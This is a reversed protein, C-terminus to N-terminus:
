GSELPLWEDPSRPRDRWPVNDAFKALSRQVAEEPFISQLLRRSTAVDGAQFALQALGLLAAPERPPAAFAPQAAVYARGFSGLASHFGAETVPSPASTRRAQWVSATRIMDALGSLREPDSFAQAREVLARAQEVDGSRAVLLASNILLTWCDSCGALARKIETRAATDDGRRQAAEASMLRLTREEGQLAARTGHEDAIDLQVGAAPLSLRYVEGRLAAQTFREIERLTDHEIDPTATLLAGLLKIVLSARQEGEGARATKQQELARKALALAAHPRGAQLERSVFYEHAPAYGPNESWERRWFAEASAFDTARLASRAGLLALVAFGAAAASPRRGLSGAFAAAVGLAVAVMPVYLFRPSVLVAYGLWIASSVPVLTTILALLALSVEPRELRLRYAAAGAGVLALGGALVFAPYPEIVGAGYRLLARGLTLDDPWALLAAYRGYAELVLPVRNYATLGGRPTQGTDFRLHVAVFALALALWPWLAIVLRRLERWTLPERRESWLEIGALVPLVVAMEKAGFALLVCVGQLALGLARRERAVRIGLTAGLLGFAALADTRGSIWAISETQVPHLAFASAGLLAPLSAGGVWSRLLYFLLFTNAGHVLVNTAHFALPMGGGWWWDLAYSAVVVPRFFSRHQVSPDYNTSWLAERFWRPWHELGHVYHNGEILPIDDFIFPGDLAPLMVLVGALAALGALLIPRPPHRAAPARSIRRLQSSSEPPRSASHRHHGPLDM